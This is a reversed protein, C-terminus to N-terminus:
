FIYYLNYTVRLLIEVYRSHQSRVERIDWAVKHMLPLIVDSNIAKDCSTMFIPERLNEICGLTEQFYLNVYEENPFYPRLTALQQAVYLVSESAIIKQELGHLKEADMVDIQSEIVGNSLSQNHGHHDPSDIGFKEKTRSIVNQLQSTIM